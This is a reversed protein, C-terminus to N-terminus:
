TATRSESGWGVEWELEALRLPSPPRARVFRTTIQSSITQSKGALYPFPPWKQGGKVKKSFSPSGLLARVQSGSILSHTRLCELLNPRTLIVTRSENIRVSRNRKTDFYSLESKLAALINDIGLRLNSWYNAMSDELDLMVGPAGSNLMKVVLEADDAPGTM